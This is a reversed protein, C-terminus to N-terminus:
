VPQGGGVGEADAIRRNIREPLTYLYMLVMRTFEMMEGATKPTFEEAEHLADNGELRIRHAWEQLDKTIRGQAFLKDIRKELKWAEIDPSHEKLALELCRRFMAAAATARGSALSESGEVFARAAREPIHEPSEIRVREPFVEVALVAENNALNGPLQLLNGIAPQTRHTRARVAIGYGCAPCIGMANWQFRDSQHPNAYPVNFTAKTAGCYPCDHVLTPMKSDAGNNTM